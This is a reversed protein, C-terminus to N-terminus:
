AGAEAHELHEYILHTLADEAKERLDVEGDPDGGEDLLTVLQERGEAVQAETLLAPFGNVARLLAAVWECAAEKRKAPVAPSASVVEVVEDVIRTLLAGDVRLAVAGGALAVACDRLADLAEALDDRGQEELAYFALACNMEMALLYRKEHSKQALSLYDFIFALSSL